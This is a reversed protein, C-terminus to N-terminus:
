FVSDYILCESAGTGELNTENEIHLFHLFLIEDHTYAATLRSTVTCLNAWDLPRFAFFICVLIRSKDSVKEM